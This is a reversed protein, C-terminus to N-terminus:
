NQPRMYGTTNILEMYRPTLWLTQTTLASVSHRFIGAISSLMFLDWAYIIATLLYSPISYNM